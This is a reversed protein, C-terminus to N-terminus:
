NIQVQTPSSLIYYLRYKQLTTYSQISSQEL